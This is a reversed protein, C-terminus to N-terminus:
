VVVSSRLPTLPSTTSLERGGYEYANTYRLAEKVTNGYPGRKDGVWIHSVDCLAKMRAGKVPGTYVWGYTLFVM